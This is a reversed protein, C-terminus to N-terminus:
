QKLGCYLSCASSKRHLQTTLASLAPMSKNSEIELGELVLNTDVGKWWMCEGLHFCWSYALRLTGSQRARIKSRRDSVGLSTTINTCQVTHITLKGLVSPVKPCCAAALITLRWFWYLQLPMKSYYIDLIM